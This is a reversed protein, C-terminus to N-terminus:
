LNKQAVLKVPDATCADLTSTIVLYGHRSSGVMAGLANELNQSINCHKKKKQSGIPQPGVCRLAEVDQFLGPYKETFVQWM